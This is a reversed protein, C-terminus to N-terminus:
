RNGAKQRAEDKTNKMARAMQHLGMNMVKDVHPRRKAANDMNGKIGTEVAERYDKEFNDDASGGGTPPNGSGTPPQGGQGGSGTGPDGSAGTSQTKAAVTESFTKAAEVMAEPTPLNVYIVEPTDPYEAAIKAKADNIQRESENQSHMAANFEKEKDSWALKAKLQATEDEGADRLAITYDTYAKQFEPLEEIKAITM